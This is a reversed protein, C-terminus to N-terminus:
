PMITLAAGSSSIINVFNPAFLVISIAFVLGITGGTLGADSLTSAFAPSADMIAMAAIACQAYHKSKLKEKFSM